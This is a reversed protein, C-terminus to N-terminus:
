SPPEVVVVVLIFYKLHNTITCYWMRVTLICRWHAEEVMGQVEICIVVLLGLEYSNLSRNEGMCKLSTPRFKWLILM